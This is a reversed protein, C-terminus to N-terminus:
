LASRTVIDFGVLVRDVRSLDGIIKKLPAPVRRVLTPIALIQDEAARKPNQLLDIVEITYQGPLHEDCIRQLNERATISKSTKGAVYLRLYWGDQRARAARPSKAKATDSSRKAPKKKTAM